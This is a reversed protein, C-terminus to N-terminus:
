LNTGHACESAKQAKLLINNMYYHLKDAVADKYRKLTAEAADLADLLEPLATRATAIFAGDEGSIYVDGVPSTDPALLYFDGNSCHLTWPGPTATACLKRLADRKAKDVAAGGIM